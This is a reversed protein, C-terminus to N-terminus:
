ERVEEQPYLDIQGAFAGNVYFDAVFFAPLATEGEPDITGGGSSLEVYPGWGHGTRQRGWSEGANNGGGSGDEGPWTLDKPRAEGLFAPAVSIGVSEIRDRAEQTGLHTVGDIQNISGETFKTNPKPTTDYGSNGGFSFGWEDQNPVTSDVTYVTQWRAELRFDGVTGTYLVAPLERCGWKLCQEEAEVRCFETLPVAVWRGNEKEVRLAQVALCMKEAGADEGDSPDNVTVVLLGEYTNADHRTLNYVYYGSQVDPPVTLGSDWNPCAGLREKERIERILAEQMAGPACMVRYSGSQALVAKAYTDFAGAPTTCCTSRASALALHVSQPYPADAAPSPVGAVLSVTLLVLVCVSVLGMGAPYKKFRAITEIRERIHKGGNNVCTTGPTKSFKENVMSLLIHGYARREEGELHELVCQDCRTEMDNTARGACYVLLPNCWHLCRLLCIVVSWVTDRLKLHLLEHLIIKDEMEGGAPVALVPRIVGCVFAGPLGPVSRVRCPRISLRAAIEKVRASIEESAPQGKRLALRLRVYSTLYRVLHVAVGLVYGAFLWESLTRPIKRLVPLPFLVQSFGYEGALGKLLEVVVQWHFLTYRGNWGAPLLLMVGLVGWVAFHWKPPLKDRFLAKLVLLLLAVGSATLTQLLFGWLDLM